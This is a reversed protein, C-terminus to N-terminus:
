HRTPASIHILSLDSIVGAGSTAPAQYPTGAKTGDLALVAVAMESPLYTGSGGNQVRIANAIDTLVSKQITGLAM